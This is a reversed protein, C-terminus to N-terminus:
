RQAKRQTTSFIGWAGQQTGSNERKIEPTLDSAQTPKKLAETSNSPSVPKEKEESLARPNNTTASSKPSSFIGFSSKVTNTPTDQVSKGQKSNTPTSKQAQEAQPRDINKIRFSQCPMSPINPTGPIIMKQIVSSIREGPIIKKEIVPSIRESPRREARRIEQAIRMQEEERREVSKVNQAIEKAGRERLQDMDVFSSKPQFSIDVLTNDPVEKCSKISPMGTSTDTSRSTTLFEGFDHFLNDPKGEQELHSDVGFKDIDFVEPEEPTGFISWSADDAAESDEFPELESSEAESDSVTPESAEEMILPIPSSNILGDIEPQPSASIQTPSQKTEVIKSAKKASQKKSQGFKIHRVIMYAIRKEVRPGSEVVSVDEIMAALRSLLDGLDQDENGMATCKVRYGRELLRKVMEAKMQLDKLETKPSFRINKPEGKRMTLDSKSMTREKEKLQHKYKERHFDIIKCVPPDASGQVEVLDLKLKLARDLAEHRSVIAHGEDTVLRVFRATIGENRRPGKTNKVDPKPKPKVQTPAAFCRTAILQKDLRLRALLGPQAAAQIERRALQRLILMM